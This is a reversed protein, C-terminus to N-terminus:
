LVNQLMIELMIKDFISFFSAKKLNELIILINFIRNKVYFRKNILNLSEISQIADSKQNVHTEFDDRIDHRLSVVYDHTQLKRVLDKNEDNLLYHLGNLVLLINQYKEKYLSPILDENNLMDPCQDFITDDEPYLCRNLAQSLSPIENENLATEFNELTLDFHFRNLLSHARALISIHDENLRDALDEVPIVWLQFIEDNTIEKHSMAELAKQILKLRLASDSVSEYAHYARAIFHKRQKANYEATDQALLADIDKRSINLSAKALTMAREYSGAGLGTAQVSKYYRESTKIDKNYSLAYLVFPQKIDTDKHSLIYVATKLDTTIRNPKSLSLHDPNDKCQKRLEIVTENETDEHPLSLLELCVGSKQGLFAFAAASKLSLAPPTKDELRQELQHQLNIVDEFLGLRMLADYRAIWIALADDEKIRHEIEPWNRVLFERYLARLSQIHASPQIRELAPIINEAKTRDFTPWEELTDYSQFLSIDDLYLHKEHACASHTAIVTLAFALFLLFWRLSVLPTKNKM